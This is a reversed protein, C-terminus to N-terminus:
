TTCGRDLNESASSKVEKIKLRNKLLIHDQALSFQDSLRRVSKTATCMCFFGISSLSKKGLFLKGLGLIILKNNNYHLSPQFLSDKKEFKYLIPKTTCLLIFLVISKKITTICHLYFYLSNVDFNHTNFKM